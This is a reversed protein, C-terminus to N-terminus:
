ESNKTTVWVTGPFTAVSVFAGFTVHSGQFRVTTVGQRYQDDSNFKSNNDLTFSPQATPTTTVNFGTFQRRCNNTNYQKADKHKSGRTNLWLTHSKIKNHRNSTIHAV